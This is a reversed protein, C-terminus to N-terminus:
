AASPKISAKAKAKSKTREKKDARTQNSIDELRPDERLSYVNNKLSNELVIQDPLHKTFARRVPHPM